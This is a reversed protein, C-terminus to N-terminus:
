YCLVAGLLPCYVSEVHSLQYGVDVRLKSYHHTHVNRGQTRSVVNLLLPHPAVM